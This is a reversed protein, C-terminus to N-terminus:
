VLYIDIRSSYLLGFAIAQSLPPINLVCHFHGIWGRFMLVLKLIVQFPIKSLIRKDTQQWARAFIAVSIFIYKLNYRTSTSETWGIGLPKKVSNKCSWSTRTYFCVTIISTSTSTSRNDHYQWWSENSNIARVNGVQVEAIYM